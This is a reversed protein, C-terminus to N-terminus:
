CGGHRARRVVVRVLLELGDVRVEVAFGDTARVALRPGAAHLREVALLVVEGFTFQVSRPAGCPVTLVERRGVSVVLSVARGHVIGLLCRWSGEEGVM